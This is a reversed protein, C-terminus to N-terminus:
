VKMVEDLYIRTRSKYHCSYGFNFYLRGKRTEYIKAKHWKQPKIGDVISLRWMVFPDYGEELHVEVCACNTLSYVGHIKVGENKPTEEAEAKTAQDAKTETEKTNDEEAEDLKLSGFTEVTFIYCGDEGIENTRTEVIKAPIQGAYYAMAIYKQYNERAVPDFKKEPKYGFFEESERIIQENWTSWVVGYSPKSEKGDIITIYEISDIIDKVTIAKNM